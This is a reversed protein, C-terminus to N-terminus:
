EWRKAAHHDRWRTYRSRLHRQLVDVRRKGSATLVSLQRLFILPNDKVMEPGIAPIRLNGACLIDSGSRDHQRSRENGM